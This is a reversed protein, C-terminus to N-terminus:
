EELIALGDASESAPIEFEGNFNSGVVGVLAQVGILAGVWLGLTLWANEFCWRGLRRYM